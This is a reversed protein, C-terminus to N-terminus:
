FNTAVYLNGQVGEEEEGSPGETIYIKGRRRKRSCLSYWDNIRELRGCCVGAGM